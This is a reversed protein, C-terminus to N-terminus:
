RSYEFPQAFEPKRGDDSINANTLRLTKQGTQTGAGAGKKYCSTRSRRQSPRTRVTNTSMKSASRDFITSSRSDNDKAESKKKKCYGKGCCGKGGEQEDDAYSSRGSLKSPRSSVSAMSLSRSTAAAAPVDSRFTAPSASSKTGESQEKAGAAAKATSVTVSSMQEGHFQIEITHTPAGTARRCQETLDSSAMNVIPKTSPGKPPEVSIASTGQDPRQVDVIHSPRERTVGTMVKSSTAM